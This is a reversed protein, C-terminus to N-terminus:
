LMPQLKAMELTLEGYRFALVGIISTANKEL